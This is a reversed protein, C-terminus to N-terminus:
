QLWRWTAASPTTQLCLNKYSELLAPSFAEKRSDGWEALYPYRDVNRRSNAFENSANALSHMARRPNSSDDYALAVDLWAAHRGLLEVLLPVNAAGSIRIAEVREFFRLVRVVRVDNKDASDKLPVPQPIPKGLSKAVVTLEHRDDNLDGGVLERHLELVRDVQRDNRDGRLAMAGVVVAPIVGAAQIVGALAAVLNADMSEM